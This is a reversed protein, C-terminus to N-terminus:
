RKKSKGPNTKIRPSKGAIKMRQGLLKSASGMAQSAEKGLKFKELLDKPTDMIGKLRDRQLKEEAKTDDYAQQLIPLAYDDAIRAAASRDAPSSAFGVSPTPVREEGVISAMAEDVDVGRLLENYQENTDKDWRLEIGGMADSQSANAIRELLGDTTTGSKDEANALFKAVRSKFFKSDESPLIVGMVRAIEKSEGQITEYHTRVAIAFAVTQYPAVKIGAGLANSATAARNAKETLDQMLDIMSTMYKEASEAFAFVEVGEDMFIGSKKMSVILTLNMALVDVTNECLLAYGEYIGGRAIMNARPGKVSVPHSFMIQEIVNLVQKRSVYVMQNLNRIRLQTEEAYTAEDRTDLEERYDELAQQEDTIEVRIREQEKELRVVDNRAAIEKGEIDIVLAKLKKLKDKAKRAQATRHKDKSAAIQNLRENVKKAEKKLEKKKRNLENVADLQILVENGLAKLTKQHVKIKREEAKTMKKADNYRTLETDIHSQLAKSANQQLKLREDAIIREFEKVKNQVFPSSKFSRQIDSQPRSRLDLLRKELTMKLKARGETDLGEFMDRRTQKFAKGAKKRAKKNANGFMMLGGDDM